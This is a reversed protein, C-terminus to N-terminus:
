LMRADLLDFNQIGHLESVVFLFHYCFAAPFLLPGVKDIQECFWCLVRSLCDIIASLLHVAVLDGTEGCRDISFLHCKPSYAVSFPQGTPGIQVWFQYAM